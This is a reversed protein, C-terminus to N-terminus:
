VAVGRFLTWLITSEDKSVGFEHSHSVAWPALSGATGQFDGDLAELSRFALSSAPVGSAAFFGPNRNEVCPILPSPGPGGKYFITLMDFAYGKYICIYIYIHPPYSRDPQPSEPLLKTLRAQVSAPPRQRSSDCLPMTVSACASSTSPSSALALLICAYLGPHKQKPDRTSYGQM